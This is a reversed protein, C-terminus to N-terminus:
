TLSPSPLLAAEEMFMWLAMLSPLPSDVLPHQLDTCMSGQPVGESGAYLDPYHIAM